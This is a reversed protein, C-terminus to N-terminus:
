QAHAWAHAEEDMDKVDVYTVGARLMEYVFHPFLCQTADVEAIDPGLGGTPGNGGDGDKRRAPPDDTIFGDMDLEIWRGDLDHRCHGLLDQFTTGDDLTDGDNMHETQGLMVKRAPTAHEVVIADAASNRRIFYYRSHEGKRPM